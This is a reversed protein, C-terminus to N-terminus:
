LVKPGINRCGTRDGGLAQTIGLKEPRKRTEHSNKDLGRVGGIGRLGLMASVIYLRYKQRNVKESNLYYICFCSDFFACGGPRAKKHKLCWIEIASRLRGTAGKKDHPLVLVGRDQYCRFVPFLAGDLFCGLQDFELGNALGGALTASLGGFSGEQGAGGVETEADAERPSVALAIVGDDGQAVSKETDLDFGGCAVGLRPVADFSRSCTAGDVVGSFDIEKDGIEDGFVDPVDNRDLSDTTAFAGAEIRMGASFGVAVEFFVAFGPAEEVALWLSAAPFVDWNQAPADVQFNRARDTGPLLSGPCAAFSLSLSAGIFGAGGTKARTQKLLSEKSRARYPPIRFSPKMQFVSHETSQM